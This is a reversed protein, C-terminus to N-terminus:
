RGVRELGPGAVCLFVTHTHTHTHTHSLSSPLLNPVRSASASCPQTLRIFPTCHSDSCRGFAHYMPPRPTHLVMFCRFASTHHTKVAVLVAAAAVVRYVLAQAAM